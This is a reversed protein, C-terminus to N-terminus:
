AQSVELGHAQLEMTLLNAMSKEVDESYEWNEGTCVDYAEIVHLYRRTWKAHFDALKTGHPLWFGYAPTEVLAEKGEDPNVTFERLGQGVRSALESDLGGLVPITSLRNIISMWDTCSRVILTALWQVPQIFYTGCIKEKYDMCSQPITFCELAAMVSAVSPTAEWLNMPAYIADLSVLGVRILEEAICFIREQVKWRFWTIYAIESLAESRKKPPLRSLTCWETTVAEDGRACWYLNILAMKGSIMSSAAEYSPGSVINQATPEQLFDLAENRPTLVRRARVPANSFSIDFYDRCLVERLRRVVPSDTFFEPTSRLTTPINPDNLRQYIYAKQKQLTWNEDDDRMLGLTRVFGQGFLSNRVRGSASRRDSYSLQGAQASTHVYINQQNAVRFPRAFSGSDCAKVVVNVQVDPHFFSCAAALDAPPFDIGGLTIGHQNGHGILVISVIDKPKTDAAQKHVWELVKSAVTHVESSNLQIWWPPRHEWDWRSYIAIHDGSDWNGEGVEERKGFKVDTFKGQEFFGDLDFCNIFTEHNGQDKLATAFGLFDGFLWSHRTDAVGCVVLHRTSSTISHTEDM